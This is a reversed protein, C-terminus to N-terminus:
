MGALEDVKAESKALRERLEQMENADAEKTRALKEVEQRGEEQM